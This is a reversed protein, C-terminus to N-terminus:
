SRVALKWGGTVNHLGYYVKRQHKPDMTGPRWLAHVAAKRHRATRAPVALRVFRARKKLPGGAESWGAEDCRLTLSWDFQPLGRLTAGGGYGEPAAFGGAATWVSQHPRLWHSCSGIEAYFPLKVDFALADEAISNLM